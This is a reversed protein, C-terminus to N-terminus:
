QDASNNDDDSKSLQLNEYKREKKSTYKALKVDDSSPDQYM